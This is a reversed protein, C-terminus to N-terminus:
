GSWSRIGDQPTGSDIARWASYTAVTRELYAEESEGGVVVAAPLAHLVHTLWFDWGRREKEHWDIFIPANLILLTAVAATPFIM